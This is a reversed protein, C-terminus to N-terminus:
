HRQSLRTQGWSDATAQLTITLPLHDSGIGPGTARAVTTLDPSHLAHDIAIQLPLPLMAHWTMQLPYGYQTDVLESQHRFQRMMASTASANFDGIVIVARDQAMQEQAWDAIDALERIQSQLTGDSMARSLHVNMVRVVDGAYAVDAVLIPRRSNNPLEIVEAHLVEAVADRHVFLASGKTNTLPNGLVLTYEPAAKAIQPLTTPSVEQLFVIEAPADQMFAIVKALETNAMDINAHAVTLKPQAMPDAAEAAEPASAILAFPAANVACLVAWLYTWRSKLCLSVALVALSVWLIQLSLHSLLVLPYTGVGFISLLTLACLGLGVLLVAAQLNNRLSTM